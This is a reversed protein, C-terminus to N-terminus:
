APMSLSKKQKRVRREEGFRVRMEARGLRGGRTRRLHHEQKRRDLVLRDTDDSGGVVAM